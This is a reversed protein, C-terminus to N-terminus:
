RAQVKAVLAILIECCDNLGTQGKEFFKDITLQVQKDTSSNTIKELIEKKFRFEGLQLFINAM